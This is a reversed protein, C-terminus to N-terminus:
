GFTKNVQNNDVNLGLLKEHDESDNLVLMLQQQEDLTSELHSQFPIFQGQERCTAECLYCVLGSMYSPTLSFISSSTERNHPMLISAPADRIVDLPSGLVENQIFSSM